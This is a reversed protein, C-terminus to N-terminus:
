IKGFPGGMPRVVMIVIKAEDDRYQYVVRYRGVFIERISRVQSEPVMRGMEPFTLWLDVKKTLEDTWKDAYAPSLDYLHSVIDRINESAEQTYLLNIM